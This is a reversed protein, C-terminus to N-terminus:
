KMKEVMDKLYHIEDNTLKKENLFAAFFKEKSGQFMKDVLENTAYEQAQERSLVPTCMFNPESREVVGKAICKKIVTYTTNRNWGIERNLVIVIEGARMSGKDWLVEMVKRESDYLKFEKEAMSEEQYSYIYDDYCM